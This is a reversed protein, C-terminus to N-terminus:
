AAARKAERSISLAGAIPLWLWEWVLSPSGVFTHLEVMMVVAISCLLALWLRSIECTMRARLLCFASHAMTALLLAVGVIGFQYLVEFYLGHTNRVVQGSRLVVEGLAGGAGVGFWWQGSLREFVTHWVEDRNTIGRVQVEYLLERFGLLLIIIAIAASALLINRRVKGTTMLCMLVFGGVITAVWATRAFTFFIYLAILGCCVFWIAFESRQRSRLMLWLGALLFLGYHMGAVITNGFDAVDTVGSGSLSMQRYGLLFTGRAALNLMSFAAFGAVIVVSLQLIKKWDFPGDSKILGVGLIFVIILLLRRFSRLSDDAFLSNLILYGILVLVTGALPTFRFSQKRAGPVACLLALVLTARIFAAWSSSEGPWWFPGVFLAIMAVALLLGAFYGLRLSLSKVVMVM